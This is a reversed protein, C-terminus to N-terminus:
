DNGSAIVVADGAGAADRQDDWRSGVFVVNCLNKFGDVAGQEDASRIEIWAAVAKHQM